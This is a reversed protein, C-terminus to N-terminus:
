TSCVRAKSDLTPRAKVFHERDQETAHPSKKKVTLNHRQFFRWVATGSGQIRQKRLAAVIEDLALDPQEAVLALLWDKHKRWRRLAAEARSQRRVKLRTTAELERPLAQGM